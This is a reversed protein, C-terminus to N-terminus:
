DGTDLQMFDLLFISAANFHCNPVLVTWLKSSKLTLRWVCSVGIWNLYNSMTQKQNRELTWWWKKTEKSVSCVRLVFCCYCIKFRLGCKLLRCVESWWMVRWLHPWRLIGDLDVRANRCYGTKQFHNICLVASNLVSELPYVLTFRHERLCSSLFLFFHCQPAPLVSVHIM